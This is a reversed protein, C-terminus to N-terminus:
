LEDISEISLMGNKLMDDILKKAEGNTYDYDMTNDGMYHNM